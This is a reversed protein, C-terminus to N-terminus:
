ASAVGMARLNQLSRRASELPPIAPRDNEVLLYDAKDALRILGPIDLTGDGVETFQRDPTMDKLHVLRMRDGHNRLYDAPDLGAFQTWYVDLEFAVLDPDTEELLRDFLRGDGNETTFEFDHNHYALRLGAERVAKGVAEIRQPLRPDEREEPSAWAVVIYPAGLAQAHKIEARVSSPDEMAPLRVHTGSVRLGVDRFIGRLEDTPIATAAGVEVVEYGMEAVAQYARRPGRAIEDRITYVQLGIEPRTM